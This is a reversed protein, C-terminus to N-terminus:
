ASVMFASHVIKIKKEKYIDELLVLCIHVGKTKIELAGMIKKTLLMVACILNSHFGSVLSHAASPLLRM